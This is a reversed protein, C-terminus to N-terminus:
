YLHLTFRVKILMSLVIDKVPDSYNCDINDIVKETISTMLKYESSLDFPYTLTMAEYVCLGGGWIDSEFSCRIL